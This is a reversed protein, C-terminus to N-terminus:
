KRQKTNERTKGRKRNACLQLSSPGEEARGLCEKHSFSLNPLNKHHAYGLFDRVHLFFATRFFATPGGRRLRPPPARLGFVFFLRASGIKKIYLILHKWLPYQRKNHQKNGICQHAINDQITRCQRTSDLGTPDQKTRCPKTPIGYPWRHVHITQYPKRQDRPLFLQKLNLQNKLNQPYKPM